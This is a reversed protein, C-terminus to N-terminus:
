RGDSNGDNDNGDDDEILLLFYTFVIHFTNRFLGEM